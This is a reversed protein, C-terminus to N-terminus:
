RTWYLHKSFVGDKVRIDLKGDATISLQAPYSRGNRPSYITGGTWMGGASPAFQSLIELGMIPRTRLAADVNKADMLPKGNPEPTQLWVIKGSFTNGTREIAVKSDRNETLWTGAIADDGAAQVSQVHGFLVACISMARLMNLLTSKMTVM